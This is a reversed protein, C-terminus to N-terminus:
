RCLTDHIAKHREVSTTDYFPDYSRLYGTRAFCARNDSNILYTTWVVDPYLANAIDEWLTDGCNNAQVCHLDYNISVMTKGFAKCWSYSSWWDLDHHLMTYEQNNSEITATKYEGVSDVPQCIGTGVEDDFCDTPSFLCFKGKGCQNTTWSTCQTNDAVPTCFCEGEVMTGSLCDTSPNITCEQECITGMYGSQCECEDQANLQGHGSCEAICGNTGSYVQRSPCRCTKGDVEGAIGGTNNESTGPYQSICVNDEENNIDDNEGNPLGGSSLDNNFTIDITGFNEPCESIEQITDPMMNKIQECEEKSIGGIQINFQKNNKKAVKFEYGDPTTFEGLMRADPEEPPTKGALMQAAISIARQNVGNLLENTKLRKMTYTYGMLGTISIVGM